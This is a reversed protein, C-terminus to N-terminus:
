EGDTRGFERLGVGDSDACNFQGATAPHAPRSLYGGDIVRDDSTEVHNV